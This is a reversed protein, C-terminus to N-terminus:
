AGPGARAVAEADGGVLSGIETTGADAVAQVLHRKVAPVLGPGEYVLATYLQLLRAGARIKALAADGSDIGGVGILPIKEGVRRFAEALLWTSRRFLPRGSLGGSEGARASGACGPRSLTTNGVILGDVARGLAVEAVDDLEAASLDPAIKLLLPRRPLGRGAAEDRAAIARALVDDLAARAQLARLGETNPSSVNVVLYSAVDAFAAVGLVLDVARDPSDKNAGLNVGVIGGRGARRALREHAAAHGGNNFGLRNVVAREPELRFIRPKPNGAQPRPTVSGVEVFGFGLGLMADPVRADKDFGAALGLPNPFSLGFAQVALRADDKEPRAAPLMELARLTMAHAAEPDVKALITRAVPWASAIV